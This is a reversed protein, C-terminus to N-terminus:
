ELYLNQENIYALVSDPLLFRPNLGANIQSRIMTSSIDLATITQIYIGSHNKQELESADALAHQDLYAALEADLGLKHGPRQVVMIHCFDLLRQWQHWSPLHLFADSGIILVLSDDPFEERLSTLTEVMYSPTSRNIERPDVIFSPQNETALKLMHLRQAASAKLTEKHVPQQCPIFRIQEFGIIQILELASRLHGYHIPDFTGGFLGILKKM